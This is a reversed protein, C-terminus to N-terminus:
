QYYSLPKLGILFPKLPVSVRKNCTSWHPVANLYNYTSAQSPGRRVDRPNVLMTIDFCCEAYEDFLSAFTSSLTYMQLNCDYIDEHRLGEFLKDTKWKPHVSDVNSAAAPTIEVSAFAPLKKVKDFCLNYTELFKNELKFGIKLLEANGLSCPAGTYEVTSEIPRTCEFESILREDGDM